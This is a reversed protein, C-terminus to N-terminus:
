LEGCEVIRVPIRPRDNSGSGKTPVAECKRVTMMSDGDELVRGFVVHKDDLWDTKKCTIFFQYLANM